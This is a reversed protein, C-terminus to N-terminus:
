LSRPHKWTKMSCCPSVLVWIRTPGSRIKKTQPLWLLRTLYAKHFRTMRTYCNRINDILWLTLSQTCHEAQRVGENGSAALLYVNCEKTLEEMKKFLTSKSDLTYGWSASLTAIGKGNAKQIDIIDYVALQAGFLTNKDDLPWM